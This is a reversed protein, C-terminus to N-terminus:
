TENKVAIIILQSSKLVGIIYAIILTNYVEAVDFCNRAVYLRILHAFLFGFSRLSSIENESLVLLFHSSIQLFQALM